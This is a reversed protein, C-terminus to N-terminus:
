RPAKRQTEGLDRVVGLPFVSAVMEDVHRYSAIPSMHWYTPCPSLIEILSFGVGDLQYQFAKRLLSATRRVAGASTITTRALLVPADLGDLLECVRIPYGTDQADRGRPTTTTRQGILTTPAMQGQTMGYVTNNIFIITINEGRNATHITEAMGISALDGDGQYTFILRDPFIRKLGTAVAPPRGHAAESWDIDIYDYALVACGVPAVGITRERLGMEDLVEALIRHMTSHGCGACYHTPVDLLSDPRRYVATKLGKEAQHITM